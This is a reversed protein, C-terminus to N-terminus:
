SWTWRLWNELYKLETQRLFRTISHQNLMNQVYFPNNYLNLWQLWKYWMYHLMKLWQLVNKRMDWLIWSWKWRLWNELYKLETPRLLRAISNQHRMNDISISQHLITAAMFFNGLYFRTIESMEIIKWM